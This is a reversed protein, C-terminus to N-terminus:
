VLSGRSFHGARFRLFKSCISVRSSGVSTLLSSPALAPSYRRVGVLYGMATDIDGRMRAAHVSWVGVIRNVSPAKGEFAFSGCGVPAWLFLFLALSGLSRAPM